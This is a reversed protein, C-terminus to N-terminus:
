LVLAVGASVAAITSVITMLMWGQGSKVARLQRTLEADEFCWDLESDEGEETRPAGDDDFPMVVKTPRNRFRM